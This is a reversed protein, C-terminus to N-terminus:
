APQGQNLFHLLLPELWIFARRVVRTPIFRTVAYVAQNLFGPIYVGSRKVAARWSLEAVRAAPMWAMSPFIGTNFAIHDHMETTTLGPCLAQVHVGSARIEVALSQSFDVMFRKSAAYVAVTPVQFFAVLSSVNVIVGSRAALMPVLAAHALRVPAETHLALMGVQEPLASGAFFAAAGYGASNVLAGLDPSAKLRAALCDINELRTLDLPLIESRTSYDRALEGSLAQMLEARRAVLLLSYGQSALLRAYARGIGSSAGTVCALPHTSPM